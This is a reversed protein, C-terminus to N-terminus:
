DDGPLAREVQELAYSLTRRVSVPLSEVKAKGLLGCLREVDDKSAAVGIPSSEVEYRDIAEFVSRAGRSTLAHGVMDQAHRLLSCPKEVDNPDCIGLAVVQRILTDNYAEVWNDGRRPHLEDARKEADARIVDKDVQSALRLGVCVSADPKSEWDDAFVWPDLVLTRGPARVKKILRQFPSEKAM